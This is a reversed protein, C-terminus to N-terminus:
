HQKVKNIIKRGQIRRKKKETSQNISHESQIIIEKSAHEKKYLHDKDQIIKELYNIKRKLKINEMQIAFTDNKKDASNDDKNEDSLVNFRNRTEVLSTFRPPQKQSATKIPTEWEKIIDESPPDRHDETNTKEAQLLRIVETLSEVEDRLNKSEKELIVYKEQLQKRKVYEECLLDLLVSTRDSERANKNCHTQKIADNDHGIEEEVTSPSDIIESEKKFLDSTRTERCQMVTKWPCDRSAPTFSLDKSPNLQILAKVATTENETWTCIRDDITSYEQVKPTDPFLPPTDVSGSLLTNLTEDISGSINAQARSAPKKEKIIAKITEKLEYAIKRQFSLTKTSPYWIILHDKEKLRWTAPKKPSAKSYNWTNVSGFKIWIFEKLMNISGTWKVM